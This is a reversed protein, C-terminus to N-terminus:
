QTSGSHGEITKGAKRFGEQLRCERWSKEKWELKEEQQKSTKVTAQATVNEQRCKEHCVLNEVPELEKCKSVGTGLSWRWKVEQTIGVSRLPQQPGLEEPFM